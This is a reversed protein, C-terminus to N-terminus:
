EKDEETKEPITPLEEQEEETEEEGNNLGPVEIKLNIDNDKLAKVLYNLVTKVSELEEYIKDIQEGM